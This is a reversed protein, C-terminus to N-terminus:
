EEVEIEFLVTGTGKDPGWIYSDPCQIYKAVPARPSRAHAYIRYFMSALAVPCLVDTEDMLLNSDNYVFKDGPKIGAACIGKVEKATVIVKKKEVKESSM